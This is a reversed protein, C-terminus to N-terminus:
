LSSKSHRYREAKPLEKGGEGGVERRRRGGGKEEERGGIARM